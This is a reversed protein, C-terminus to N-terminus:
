ISSSSLNDEQAMAVLLTLLLPCPAERGVGDQQCKTEELELICM